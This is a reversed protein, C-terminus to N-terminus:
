QENFERQSLCQRTYGHKEKDFNCVKNILEDEFDNYLGTIEEAKTLWDRAKKKTRKMKVQKLISESAMSVRTFFQMILPRISCIKERPSLINKYKKLSRDNPNDYDFNSILLNGLEPVQRFADSNTFDALVKKASDSVQNFNDLYHQLITIIKKPLFQMNEHFTQVDTVLAKISQMYIDILHNEKKRMFPFKKLKTLKGQFKKTWEICNQLDSIFTASLSTLEALRKQVETRPVLPPRPEVIAAVASM